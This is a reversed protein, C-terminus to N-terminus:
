SPPVIISKTGPTWCFGNDMRTGCSSYQNCSGSCGAHDCFGVNATASLCQTNPANLCASGGTYVTCAGGCVNQSRSSCYTVTVSDPSQTSLVNVPAGVFTLEADTASLWQKM